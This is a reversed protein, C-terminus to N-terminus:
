IRRVVVVAAAAFLCVLRFCRLRFFFWSSSNRMERRWVDQFPGSFYIPQWKGTLLLFFAIRFSFMFLLMFREVLSLALHSFSTRRTGRGRLILFCSVFHCSLALSHRIWILSAYLM